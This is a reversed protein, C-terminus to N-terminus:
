RCLEVTCKKEQTVGQQFLEPMNEWYSYYESTLNSVVVHDVIPINMLKGAAVMQKTAEIDLKSPTLNMGPHNHVVLINNANCLIASKFLSQMSIFANRVDGISVLSYNLPNGAANLNIVFLHERDLDVMAKALLRVADEPNVVEKDSYLPKRNVLKLRVDVQRLMYRNNKEM